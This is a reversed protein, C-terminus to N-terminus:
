TNECGKKQGNIKIYAMKDAITKLYADNQRTQATPM